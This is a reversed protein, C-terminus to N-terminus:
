SNPGRTIAQHSVPEGCITKRLLTLLEPRSKNHWIRESNVDPLYAFSNVWDLIEEDSTDAGFKVGSLNRLTEHGQLAFCGKSSVRTDELNLCILNPLRAIGKLSEDLIPTDEVSLTQLNPFHAPCDIGEGTIQTERLYMYDLSALRGLNRFGSDTIKNDTVDLSVLTPHDKLGALDADTIGTTHLILRELQVCGRFDLPPGPEILCNAIEVERLNPASLMSSVADRSISDPGLWVEELTPHKAPFWTLPGTGEELFLILKKLPSREILRLVEDAQNGPVTLSLTELGLGQELMEWFQRAFTCGSVRLEKLSTVWEPRALDEFSGAEHLWLTELTRSGRLANLGVSTLEAQEIRLEKLNPLRALEALGLDTFANYEISLDELTELDAILALHEDRLHCQDLWLNSLKKLAKLEHLGEQLVGSKKVYLTTLDKCLALRAGLEADLRVNSLSLSELCTPLQTALGDSTVQTDQLNLSKLSPIRSLFELGDDTVGTENLFVTELHKLEALAELDTDEVERFSADLVEMSPNNLIAPIWDSLRAESPLRLWKIDTRGEALKRTGDGCYAFALDLQDYPFPQDGLWDHAKSFVIDAHEQSREAFEFYRTAIALRLEPDCDDPRLSGVLRDLAVRTPCAEITEKTILIM